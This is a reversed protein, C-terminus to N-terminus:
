PAVTHTQQFSASAQDTEPCASKEQVFAQLAEVASWPVHVQGPQTASTIEPGHFDSGGTAILKHKRALRALFDIELGSYGIYYVELGVLGARVLAPIYETVHLPHALVPAGGARAILRIADRPTLKPRAVYAPAGWGLYRRFADEVNDVYNADVLAQAIHPRGISGEGALASVQDVSLHCGALALKDLVKHLRGLRSERLEELREQLHQDGHDLHYGLIHIERSGTIDTSLELGPIAILDTSRAAALFEDIGATIDHDTLAIAGLGIKAALRVLEAPTYIGDSATSHLHLDVGKNM